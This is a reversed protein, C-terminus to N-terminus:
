RPPRVGADLLADVIKRNARPMALRDLEAQTAWRLPQGMRGKATSSTGAQVSCSFAHLTVTFHSYAHDVRALLAGVEVELGVEEAVERRCAEAPSEAAGVKGGPFEWLGGLMADDARRQVLVRGAEDSMIGVAVTVHPVAKRAPRSPYLEVANMALAACVPRLRCEDCRPRSPTCITAGHEMLSENHLGPREPDLVTQALREIATRGAAGHVDDVAFVRALVRRVNGDVVALPRGYAISQVAATTYAGVGPLERFVAPDDPVRAGHETAVARAARHLNRARAYYGLGEWSKLVDDIPADALAEITPYRRIFRDFYPTAQDVRTQQLMVESLWVRYPDRRGGEAVRWPLPRQTCEFGDALARFALLHREQVEPTADTGAATGPRGRGHAM